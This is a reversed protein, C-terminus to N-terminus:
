LKKVAGYGAGLAGVMAAGVFPLVAGAVAGFAGWILMSKGTESKIGKVAADKVEGLAVEGEAVLEKAYSKLENEDQAAVQITSSEAGCRGCFKARRSVRASCESCKM